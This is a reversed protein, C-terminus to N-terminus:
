RRFVALLIALLRTSLTYTGILGLLDQITPSYDSISAVGIRRLNSSILPNKLGIWVVPVLKERTTPSYYHPSLPTSSRAEGM